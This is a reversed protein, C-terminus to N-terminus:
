LFLFCILPKKCSPNAPNYSLPAPNLHNFYESISLTSPQVISFIGFGVSSYVKLPHIAYYTLLYIAYHTM